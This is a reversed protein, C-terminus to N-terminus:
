AEVDVAGGWGDGTGDRAGVVEVADAKGAVGDEDCEEADGEETEEESVGERAAGCGECESHAGAYDEFYDAVCTADLRM